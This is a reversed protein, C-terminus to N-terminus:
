VSPELFVDASRGSVDAPAVCAHDHATAAVRFVVRSRGSRSHTTLSGGRAFQGSASVAYQRFRCGPRSGQPVAGVTQYRPGRQRERCGDLAGEEIDPFILGQILCGPSAASPRWVKLRGTIGRALARAAEFEPNWCDEILIAGEFHVRYRQGREGRIVTPEIVIRHTMAGTGVLNLVALVRM